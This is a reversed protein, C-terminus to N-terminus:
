DDEWVGRFTEMAEDVLVQDGNTWFEYIVKAIDERNGTIRCEPWGNWNAGTLSYVCNYGAILEVFEKHEQPDDDSADEQEVYGIDRFLGDIKEHQTM